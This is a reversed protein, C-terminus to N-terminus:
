PKTTITLTYTAADQNPSITLRETGHGVVAYSRDDSPSTGPPGDAHGSGFWCVVDHGSGLNPRFPDVREITLVDGAHVSVQDTLKSHTGAELDTLVRLRHRTVAVGIRQGQPYPGKCAAVEHPPRHGGRAALMVVLLV